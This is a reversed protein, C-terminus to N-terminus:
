QYKNSEYYLIIFTHIYKGLNDYLTMVQLDYAEINLGHGAVVDKDRINKWVYKYVMYKMKLFNQSRPFTSVKM